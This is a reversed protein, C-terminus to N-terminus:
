APEIPLCRSPRTVSWLRWEKAKEQWDNSGRFACGDVGKRRRRQPLSVMDGHGLEDVQVQVGVIGKEIASTVDFLEAFMYALQAHRGDGHGVMAVNKARDVEDIRSV